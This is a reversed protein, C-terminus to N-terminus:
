IWVMYHGNEFSLSKGTLEKIFAPSYLNIWPLPTWIREQLNNQPYLSLNIFDFESIDKEYKEKLAKMMRNELYDINRKLYFLNKESLDGIDSSIEEAIDRLPKHAEVMQRKLSDAVARISPNNKSELWENKLQEVGENVVKEYSINYKKAYREVNRDLFTFSLRPVVPPMKLNMTHFAQKLSAWYAIEGPGGIFALTPFLLEQMIPRTVVNNSLKEPHHEAINFLEETTLLVENQKGAWDGESTRKLLIREDDKHYFLHGENADADLSLSYGLEGLEKVSHQVSGAIEPQAKILASFHDKELKRLDADGSDVLVLGDEEFLQYILRAFFDVYSDSQELCKELTDFLVSSYATEQLQQFLVTLWEKSEEQNIKMQSISQKKYVKQPHTYKEMQGQNPLFVHNIEDFDHDEGAIWFVPIVPTKLEKEKQKAFQIISIVKNITYMPGTLLGAQQGGIVTVSNKGKLREINDITTRPADWRNNIGHLVNTLDARDYNRHKVDEIREQYQTFPDYDFFAMIAKESARYDRILRSKNHIEIADIQM